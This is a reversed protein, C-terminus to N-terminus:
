AIIYATSEYGYLAMYPPPQKGKPFASEKKAKGIYRPSTIVIYMVKASSNIINDKIIARASYKLLRRSLHFLILRRLKGVYATLEKVVSNSAVTM